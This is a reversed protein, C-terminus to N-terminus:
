DTNNDDNTSSYGEANEIRQQILPHSQFWSMEEGTSGSMLTALKEMAQKFAAPDRHSEKLTTLAFNDAEWEHAQSFKNHVVSSGVGFFAEVAGSVDGFLLSFGVTAFLSEAVLQMSHNHEVHGIEHLFIADLLAQNQSVLEVLQDTFVITGDPLAFANPGMIDSHRFLVTFHQHQTRIDRLVDKFGQSISQRTEASLESPSLASYDLATLTQESAVVKANMPVFAAFHLAMAPILKGFVLYLLLPVVVFSGVIVRRNSELFSLRGGKNGDLWKDLSLTGPLVLLMGNGLTIERPLNGLKSQVTVENRRYIRQAEGDDVVLTGDRLACTVTCQQASGPQFLQGEM